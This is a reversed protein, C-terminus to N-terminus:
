TRGEASHPAPACINPTLMELLLRAPDEPDWSPEALQGMSRLGLVQAMGGQLQLAFAVTSPSM